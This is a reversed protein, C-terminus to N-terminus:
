CNFFKNWKNMVETLLCESVFPPRENFSQAGKSGLHRLPKQKIKSNSKEWVAKAWISSAGIQRVGGAFMENLFSRGLARVLAANVGM